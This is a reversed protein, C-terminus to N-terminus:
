EELHQSDCSTLTTIYEQSYEEREIEAQFESCGGNTMADDKFHIERYIAVDAGAMVVRGAFIIDEKSPLRRDYTLDEPILSCNVLVFSTPARINIQPLLTSYRSSRRSHTAAGRFSFTSPLGTLAWGNEEAEEEVEDLVDSADMPTGTPDLPEKVLGRYFGKWPVSDDVQWYTKLGWYRALRLIHARARGITNHDTGVILRSGGWCQSYEDQELHCVFVVSMTKRKMLSPDFDVLSATRSRGRSPTFVVRQETDKLQGDLDVLEKLGSFHFTTGEIAVRACSMRPDDSALLDPEESTDQPEDQDAAATSERWYPVGSNRHEQVSEVFKQYNEPQQPDLAKAIDVLSVVGYTGYSRLIWEEGIPYRKSHQVKFDRPLRLRPAPRGGPSSFKPLNLKPRRGDSDSSGPSTPQVPQLIRRIPPPTKRPSAVSDHSHEAPSLSCTQLDVNEKVEGGNGHADGQGATGNSTATLAAAVSTSKETKEAQTGPQTEEDLVM